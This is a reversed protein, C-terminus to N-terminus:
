GAPQLNALTEIGGMQWYGGWTSPYANSEGDAKPWNTWTSENYQAWLGNYWLPIVPMEQLSIEQLQSMIDAFKPDDNPTRALDQTLNWAEENELRQYNGALQQEQIPLYFLRNYYTWPTNSLAAYNNLMMDFDGSARADDVAGSDPFDATVNIGAAQLGEAIVRAAEMWDTWGQPVILKLDIAEGDKTEVFGDGDSDEYGADALIKKAQEVDYTYGLESTVADDYYQEYAPLLGSPHAKAVIGGYANAVISDVDVAFAMARRFEADDMPKKTSNPVLWATNASLMYPASDYYTGVQGSDALTNIGPLFNNSLDLGNQLMLGLAVENSPNVIDVVYKMPMQMGLAEIGWWDDNREWVMRDQGVTSFKFSGSGIPNENANSTYEEPSWKSVIHEPVVMTTYLWNDWEQPRPDSFDFTVTQADTAKASDLWNWLNSYPVAPTKGLEATFVVDDADLAEGDTWTLGERLHVVYTDDDTWEGSEALWPTLELTEPDFGFLPEYLLGRVGTADGTQPIPNWSSPPGWQSGSTFITEERPYEGVLAQAEAMGEVTPSAAPEPSSTAGTGGGGSCGALLVLATTGAALAVSAKTRRLFM